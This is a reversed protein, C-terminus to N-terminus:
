GDCEEDLEDLSVEDTLMDMSAVDLADAENQFMLALATFAIFEGEEDEDLEEGLADANAQCVSSVNRLSAVVDLARLYVEGEIVCGSLEMGKEEEAM